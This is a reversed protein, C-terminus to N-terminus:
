KISKLAEKLWIEFQNINNKILFIQEAKQRALKGM